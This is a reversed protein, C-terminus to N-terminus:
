GKGRRLVTTHKWEIRDRPAVRAMKCTEGKIFYQRLALSASNPNSTPKQTKKSDQGLGPDVKTGHL